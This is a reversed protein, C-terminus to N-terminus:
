LRLTRSRSVQSIRPTMNARLRASATSISKLLLADSGMRDGDEYNDWAIYARNEVTSMVLRLFVYDLAHEILSQLSDSIDTCRYNASAARIQSVCVLYSRLRSPHDVSSSM